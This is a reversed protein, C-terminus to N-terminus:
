SQEFDDDERTRARPRGLRRDTAAHMRALRRTTARAAVRRDRSPTTSRRSVCISDVYVELNVSDDVTLADARAIALRPFRITSSPASSALSPLSSSVDHPSCGACAAFRASLLASAM